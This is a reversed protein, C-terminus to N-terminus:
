NLVFSVPFFIAISIKVHSINEISNIALIHAAKSKIFQETELSQSGNIKQLFCQEPNFSIFSIKFYLKIESFSLSLM